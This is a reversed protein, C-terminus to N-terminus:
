QKNQYMDLSGRLSIQLYVFTAGVGFGGDCPNIYNRYAIPDANFLKWLMNKVKQDVWANKSLGSAKYEEWFEKIVDPSPTVECSKCYGEKLNKRPCLKGCGDCDNYCVRCLPGLYEACDWGNDHFGKGLDQTDVRSILYRIIDDKNM